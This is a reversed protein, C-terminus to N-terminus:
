KSNLWDSYIDVTSLWIWLDEKSKIDWDPLFIQLTRKIDEFSNDDLIYHLKEGFPMKFYFGTKPGVYENWRGPKMLELSLNVFEDIKDSPVNVILVGDKNNRIEEISLKRFRDLYKLEEVM